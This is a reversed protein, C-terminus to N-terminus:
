KKWCTAGDLQNDASLQRQSSFCKGSTKGCQPHDPAALAGPLHKRGQPTLFLTNTRGKFVQGRCAPKSSLLFALTAGPSPAPTALASPEAEGLLESSEQSCPSLSGTVGPGEGLLGM